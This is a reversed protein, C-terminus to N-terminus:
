RKLQGRIKDRLAGNGLINFAWIAAGAVPPVELLTYKIRYDGHTASIAEKITDLLLPHEGKVFNSGAFIIHLDEERSYQLEDIMCSIGGAYSKGIDRLIGSAVRDNKAAAEFLMKSLFNVRLSKDEIKEYVKDVFDGKDSIGLQQLLAETM